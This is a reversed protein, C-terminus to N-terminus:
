QKKLEKNIVEDLLRRADHDDSLADRIEYLLRDSELRKFLRLRDLHYKVGTSDQERAAIEIARAMVDPEPFMWILRKNLVERDGTKLPSFEQFRLESLESYPRFFTGAVDAQFDLVEKFSAGRQEQALLRLVNWARAQRVYDLYVAAAGVIMVVGMLALLRPTLGSRTVPGHPTALGAFLGFPLLFYAYWLPYEILSHILLLVVVGGSFCFSRDDLWRMRSAWLWWVAVAALLIASAFGLEAALHAFLNHANYDILTGNAPNAARYTFGAYNGPGIGFTPQSVAADFARRLLEARYSDSQGVTVDIARQLSSTAPSNMRPGAWYALLMGLAAVGGIIWGPRVSVSRWALRRNSPFSALVLIFGTAILGMRSGTFGIAVILLLQLVAFWAGRLRGSNFLYLLAVSGVALYSAAHNSQALNAYLGATLYSPATVWGPFSNALGAAQLLQLGFTLLSGIVLGSAMWNLVRDKFGAGSMTQGFQFALCFLLAAIVLTYSFYPAAGSGNAWHWIAPGVIAVLVIPLLPHVAVTRTPLVVAFGVVAAGLLGVALAEAFTSPVLGLKLPFTVFPLCCVLLLLALAISHRARVPIM